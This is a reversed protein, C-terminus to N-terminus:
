QFVKILEEIIKYDQKFEEIKPEVMAELPSSHAPTYRCCRDYVDNLEQKHKDILQGDISVFRDLSINKKYRGVTEKLVFQEVFLEIKSRLLSYCQGAIDGEPLDKPSNNLLANIRGKYNRLSNKEESDTIIGSVARESKIYYNNVELSKYTDIKQQSLLSYYLLISHTFIVVQRDVSLKILRKAVDDIIYHDLSNVPDDFVIPSSSSELQIETLFESLAIAKQEGESLVELLGFGNQMAQSVKSKGKSTGFDLSIDINSKRLSKLENSFTTAFNDAILEERADSTKRSLTNTGLKSRCKNLEKVKTFNDIITVVQEKRDFLAKRDIHEAILQKLTRERPIVNEVQENLLNIEEEKKSKTQNILKLVKDFSFSIKYVKLNDRNIPLEKYASVFLNLDDLEQPQKITEDENRGFIPLLFNLNNKLSTIQKIYVDYEKLKKELTDKTTNNLLDSYAQILSKSQEDNFKQNCYVCRDDTNNPYNDVNLLKIYEDAASIFDTFKKSTYLEIGNTEAIEKLSGTEAKELAEIEVILKQLKSLETSNIVQQLHVIESNISNLSTIELNLSSIKSQMLERNLGQLEKELEELKKAYEDNWLSLEGLVKKSSSASASNLFHKQPTGDNFIDIFPVDTPYKILDADVLDKLFSLEQNVIDFLHFGMPSVLLKRDVLSIKVCDNNFVSLNKLDHNNLNESWILSKESDDVTYQIKASLAEPNEFINHLIAKNADFSYGLSKLIRSYGTKGAGNEGYIVTLNKAFSLEQDKSLKNVGTVESLKKLVVKKDSPTYTPRTLEISEGKLDKLFGCSFLLREYVTQREEDSLNGGKAVVLNVLMKKWDDNDAWDWLFDSVNRATPTGAM